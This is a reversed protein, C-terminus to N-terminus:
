IKSLLVSIVKDVKKSVQKNILLALVVLICVSVIYDLLVMLIYEECIRNFVVLLRSSLVAILPIHILYIEYSVYGLKRLIYSIGRKEGIRGRSYKFLYSLSFILGTAGIMHNLRIDNNMRLYWFGPELMNCSPYGGFYCGLGGGIVAMFIGMKCYQLSFKNWMTAMLVGIPAMCFFYEKKLVFAIFLIACAMVGIVNSKNAIVALLWSIYSDIFIYCIMWLATSITGDSQFLVKFFPILFIDKVSIKQSYLAALWPSQALMNAREMGFLGVNQFSYTIVGLLFITLSFRLYRKIMSMVIYDRECQHDFALVAILFNSLVLFIFVMFDGNIIFSMPFDSLFADWRCHSFANNGYYTAPLFALLFHHTFIMICALGKTIDIWEIRAKM